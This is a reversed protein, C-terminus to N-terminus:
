LFYFTKPLRKHFLQQLEEVYPPDIKNAIVALLPIERNSLVQLTSLTNNILEEPKHGNGKTILILPIGLNKVIELNSYFEFAAGDGDFDTGDVVVFDNVEELKKFKSIITDIIYASNGESRYMLLEDYTFAYADEYKIDLDFHNIMTEIYIDKNKAVSERVVPKFYAIKKIKGVLMNMLGLTIVSKGSYPESSAVYIAKSMFRSKTSQSSIHLLRLFKQLPAHQCDDKLQAFIM